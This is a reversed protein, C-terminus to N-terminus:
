RDSVKKELDEGTDGHSVLGDARLEWFEANKIGLPRPDFQPDKGAKKQQQYDKLAKLAPGQLILIAVVNLWAMAGVGIDGLAWANGTTTVSGYVVAVLILGQLARM